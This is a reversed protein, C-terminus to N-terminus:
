GIRYSYPLGVLEDANPEFNANDTFNIANIEPTGTAIFEDVYATGSVVSGKKGTPTITVPIDVTQGPNVTVITFSTAPTVSTAWLDTATSTANPDFAKTVAYFNFNVSGTPWGNPGAPGIEAPDAAWAGAPLPNGTTAGVATKGTVLPPLDPDGAFPGYDFTVPLTATAVVAAGVTESPVLWAPTSNGGPFPLAVNSIPSIGALELNSLGSLRPDVFYDEPANGTNHVAVQVTVPKGAPLTTAPSDPLGAAKVDVKNFTLNGTFPQSLEDGVIAGVFNVALTWRGPQPNRAYLDTQLVNHQTANRAAPDYATTLANNGTAVVNGQPDILFAVVSDGVDNTLAVNADLDRKGAPVDIQYFNEQGLDTQRGNGGTLTGNFAGSGNASVLSRLIIPVSTQGGAGANLVVSGDADGPTTPTNETVTVSSTQGPALHLVSPSVSGYGTTNQTDAEFSVKGVTGGDAASISYIEATWRGATPFRVDVNGYNGVGQPLSHAAFRGLPDVLILRVRANLSANPDGPYAISASLRDTNAPVNFTITGYNNPAGSWDSFHPSTADSLTVSGTQKNTQPGFGRGSLKVTQANAGTNTVKLNFKKRSGAPASADLQNKSVLLTSGTAKPSGNSDHISLAAEVAKYSDLLGAGQEDGPETLDDATSTLIQKVLAPTPTAGHHSQRYAQIVLAAAGATLPSSESTGGSREVDSPKGNFDTCDAYVPSPTCLAFSSDGPALLDLTTGNQTVGSSSLSSVNDNVWGNPAFTQAAGYDTQQYWRFTTSAGASIVKPDTSPSGQTGTTGADGSSVTVTVGAAVAADDFLKVADASSNDTFPNYGFSENIVNVHDTNVAYDISELIASTTSTNTNGFVKFGYLSAGPAMGEIRIDCPTPLPHAGFNQVNYVQRGQAAIASADLFAEGGSTDANPGDGTFDQYDAFVHSGDARIFDPNNIDIGEAIYAVKVGAGTFGLSRATKAAPDDSDTHTDALAEPELMTKSPAPCTGAPEGSDASGASDTSTAPAQVDKVVSDPIVAQVNPNAALRSAEAASVTASVADAVHYSRVHQAHVQSLEGVLPAQIGSITNDRTKAAPSNEAQPTPQNKMLVIVPTNVNQALSAAQQATLPAQGATAAPTATASMPQVMALVAAAATAAALALTKKRQM